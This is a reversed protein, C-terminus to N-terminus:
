FCNIDKSSILFVDLNFELRCSQRDEPEWYCVCVCGVCACVGGGYRGLIMWFGEQAWSGPLIVGLPMGGHRRVEKNGVESGERKQGRMCGKSGRELTLLGLRNVEQLGQFGKERCDRDTYCFDLFQAVMNSSCVPPLQSSWVTREPPPFSAGMERDRLLYLTSNPGQSSKWRFNWAKPIKFTGIM